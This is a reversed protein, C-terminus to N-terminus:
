ESYETPMLWRELLASIEVTTPWFVMNLPMTTNFTVWVLDMYM